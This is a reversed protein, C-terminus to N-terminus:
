EPRIPTAMAQEPTASLPASVTVPNADSSVTETGTEPAPIRSKRKIMVVNGFIVMSLGVVAEITWVFGEMVTSIMLAVVPVMVSMYAARGVGIRSILWVYLTFAIVTGMISLYLLSLVYSPQTDFSPMKGQSIAYILNCLTGYGMAWANFELIPIKRTSAAGAAINGFSCIMAAIISLFLGLATEDAFSFANIEPAFLLVLGAIGILAAGLASPQIPDGLFIRANVINLFSLLSFTVAVLGSTLYATGWYTFIYGGSFLFLGTLMMWKHHKLDIKLSKGRAICIAFLILSALGFRYVLSWEKPVVGLQLEIAYWTSGWIAVCGFFALFVGM